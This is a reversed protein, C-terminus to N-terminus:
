EVVEAGPFRQLVRDITSTAVDPADALARVEAIDIVEDVSPDPDDAHAPPAGGDAASTAGGRGDDVVLALRVPRGLAEALREEVEASRAECRDRHVASPLAVQM